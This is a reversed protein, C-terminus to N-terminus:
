FSGTAPPAGPAVAPAPKAPTPGPNSPLPHKLWKLNARCGNGYGRSEYNDKSIDSGANANALRFHICWKNGNCGSADIKDFTGNGCNHSHTWYFSEAKDDKSSVCYKPIEKPVSSPVGYGDLDYLVLNKNTAYLKAALANALDSGSSHGVIIIQRDKDKFADAAIQNVLAVGNAQKDSGHDLTVGSPYRYARFDYVTGKQSEASAKWCKMDDSQSKAGGIYIVLPKQSDAAFLSFGPLFALILLLYRM